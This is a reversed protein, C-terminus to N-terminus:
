KRVAHVMRPIGQLDPEIKVSEWVTRDFMRGVREAQDFGIEMLLVCGSRLYDPARAILRRIISLGDGGDSLALHPEFRGVEVQLTELDHAPVYPPNAVIMDFKANDIADFVDSVSLNLRDAVGHKAANRAAIALASASVDGGVAFGQPVNALISISICGSGVGIECFTPSLRNKLHSIAAEVILETEPRPILVDPTVEFDLGYFETTGAIYQVPERNARREIFIRFRELEDDRLTYEPHAIVFARDRHIASRLLTDADRRVEPVEAIELIIVAEAVAEAITM